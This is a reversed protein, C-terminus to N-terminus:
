SNGIGDFVNRNNESAVDGIWQGARFTGGMHEGRLFARGCCLDLKEILPKRIECACDHLIVAAIYLVSRSRAGRATGAATHEAQEVCRNSRSDFEHKIKCM